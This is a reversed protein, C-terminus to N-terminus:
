KGVKQYMYYNEYPRLGRLSMTTISEYVMAIATPGMWLGTYLAISNLTWNGNDYGSEHPTQYTQFSSFEKAISYLPYTAESIMPVLSWADCVGGLPVAFVM